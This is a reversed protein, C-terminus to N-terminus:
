VFQSELLKVLFNELTTICLPIKLGLYCRFKVFQGVLLADISLKLGQVSGYFVVLSFKHLFNLFQVVFNCNLQSFLIVDGM